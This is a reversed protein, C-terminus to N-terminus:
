SIKEFHKKRGLYIAFNLLPLVLKNSHEQLNIHLSLKILMKLRKVEAFFERGTM